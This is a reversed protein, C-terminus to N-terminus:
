MYTLYQYCTLYYDISSGPRRDEIYGCKNIITNNPIRVSCTRNGIDWSFNELSPAEHNGILRNVNNEGSYNIVFNNHDKNMKEILKIIENYGINVNRTKNNSINIHCGSGNFNGKLPKPNFDANYDYKNCLELLIYKAFIMQDGIELVGEVPGIQYEWQSKEVEQNIGSIELGVKNCLELHEIVLEKETKEYNGVSCYYIGDHKENKIEKNKKFLFYEQELGYWSEYVDFNDDLSAHLINIEKENLRKINWRKLIELRVLSRSNGLAAEYHDKENNYMLSECLCLICEKIFPHIIYNVPLLIVESNTTPVQGTSSGDYNWKVLKEINLQKIDIDKTIFDEIKLKKENKIKTRLNKKADLWLYEVLM